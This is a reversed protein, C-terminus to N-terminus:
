ETDYGHMKIEAKSKNGCKWLWRTKDGGGGCYVVPNMDDTETTPAHAQNNHIRKNKM